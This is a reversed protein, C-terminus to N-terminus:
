LKNVFDLVFKAYEEKSVFDQKNDIFFPEVLIRAGIPSAKLSAVGRDSSSLMKKGKTEPRRLVRGFRETFGKAFAEAIAYSKTDGDIVLVECGKASGNYSNLHFQITVDPIFSLSKAVAGLSSDGLFQKVNRTTNKTVYDMVWTNYEVESTGNGVAGSDSGGHGRVLAIKMKSNVPFSEVEDKTPIEPIPEVPPVKTPSNNGSNPSETPTSKFLSKFWKWLKM